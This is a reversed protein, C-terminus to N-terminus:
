RGLKKGLLEGFTGLSSSGPRQYAAVEAAERQAAVQKMSLSIRRRTADVEIVVVEVDQGVSVVDRAHRVRRDSLESVHVLGEVGGELAVIAGFQELRVVKGQHRSGRALKGSAEVIPDTSLAKVSLSIRDPKKPDNSIEIKTIQAEVADGVSLAESPHGVRAFGIESVHVLGEIGGLDVFAGFEKLRTIRGRVTMGVSLGARLEAAKAAREAEIHARRSVVVNAREGQRELQTVRFELDRGVFAQADEVFGAELQSIPCFARVSGIEVEVGGKNVGTVRGVVPAGSNFAQGLEALPDDGGGLRTRLVAQGDRFAVVFAKLTDGVKVTLEGDKNILEAREILGESKGDLGIFVADSSIAVVTGVVTDGTRVGRSKKGARAEYEAFLGAFGGTENKSM